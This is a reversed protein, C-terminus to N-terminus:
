YIIIIYVHEKLSFRFQVVDKLGVLLLPPLVYSTSRLKSESSTVHSLSMASEMCSWQYSGREMIFCSLWTWQCHGDEIV